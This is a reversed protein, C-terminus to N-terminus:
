VNDRAAVIVDVRRRRTIEMRAHSHILFVKRNAARKKEFVRRFGLKTSVARKINPRNQSAEPPTYTM